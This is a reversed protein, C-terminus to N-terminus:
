ARSTPFRPLHPRLLKCTMEIGWTIRAYTLSSKEHSAGLLRVTIWCPQFDVSGAECVRHLRQHVSHRDMVCGSANAGSIRKSRRPSEYLSLLLFLLLHECVTYPVAVPVASTIANRPFTEHLCSLLKLNNAQLSRLCVPPALQHKPCM